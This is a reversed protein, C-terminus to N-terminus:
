NYSNMVNTVGTTLRTAPPQNGATTHPRHYNYHVLWKTLAANRDAENTYTHAYVLEEALVRPYRKVKGNHRPTFPRTRQHRAVDFLSRSFAAARYCSGNLTVVRTLRTIGHATFFM